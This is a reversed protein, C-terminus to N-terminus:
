ERRNVILRITASVVGSGTGTFLTKKTKYPLTVNSANLAGCKSCNLRGCSYVSSGRSFLEKAVVIQGCTKKKTKEKLTRENMGSNRTEM